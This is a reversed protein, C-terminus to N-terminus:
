EMPFPVEPGPLPAEIRGNTFAIMMTNIIAARCRSRDLGGAEMSDPELDLAVSHATKMALVFEAWPIKGNSAAPAPGVPKAPEPKTEQAPKAQQKAPYANYYTKGDKGLEQEIDVDLVQGRSPSDKQYLSYWKGDPTKVGWQTKGQFLRPAKTVADVQLQM